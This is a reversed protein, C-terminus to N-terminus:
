NENVRVSITFIHIRNYRPFHHGGIIENYHPKGTYLDPLETLFEKLDTLCM